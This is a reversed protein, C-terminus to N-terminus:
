YYGPPMEKEDVIEKLRSMADDLERNTKKLHNVIEKNEADLKGENLLNILGKISALPARFIHAYHFAYKRLLVNQRQLDETRASVKKELEQNADHLQNNAIELDKTQRSIIENRELISNNLMVLKQNAQKEARGKNILLMFLLIMLLFLIVFSIILGYQFQVKVDAREKQIKIVQLEKEKMDTEFMTRLQLYQNRANLRSLSDKLSIFKKLYHNENEADNKQKFDMATLQYNELLLDTLKYREAIKNAEALLANRQMPQTNGATSHQIKFLAHLTSVISRQDDIKKWIDLAKVQESRAALFERRAFYWNGLGNHTYALARDDKSTIALQMAQKYYYVASDAKHTLFFLEGLNYLVLARQNNEAGAEQLSKHLFTYSQDFDGAKKYVEAVNNYLQFMLQPDPYKELIVLAKRYYQLAEDFLGVVWFSNGLNILSHIKGKPFNLSDSLHINKLILVSASDPDTLVLKALVENM